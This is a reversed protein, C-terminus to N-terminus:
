VLEAQRFSAIDTYWAGYRLCSLYKSISTSKLLHQIIDMCKITFLNGRTFFVIFLIGYMYMYFFALHAISISPENHPTPSTFSSVFSEKSLSLKTTYHNTRSVIRSPPTAAFCVPQIGLWLHTKWCIDFSTYAHPRFFIAKCM